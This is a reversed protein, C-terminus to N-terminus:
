QIESIHKKNFCLQHPSGLHILPYLIRRCHLLCPLGPNLGQTPFIGQLLAHGGVGTNKGPTDISLPAQHAVTWLTALLWVHSFRSLVCLQHVINAYHGGLGFTAAFPLIEHKKRGWLIGKYMYVVDKNMQMRLGAGRALALPKGSVVMNLQILRCWLLSLILHLEFFLQGM